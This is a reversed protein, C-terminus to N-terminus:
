RDRLEVTKHRVIFTVRSVGAVHLAGLITCVTSARAREDIQLRFGAGPEHELYGLAFRVIEEASVVPLSMDEGSTVRITEGARSPSVSILPGERPAWTTAWAKPVKPEGRTCGRVEPPILTVTGLCLLMVGTAAALQARSVASRSLIARRGHRLKMGSHSAGRKRLNGSFTRPMRRQSARGTSAGNEWRRCIRAMSRAMVQMAQTVSRALNAAPTAQCTRSSGGGGPQLSLRDFVSGTGPLGPGAM